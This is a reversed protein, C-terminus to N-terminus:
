PRRVSPSPEPPGALRTAVLASRRAAVSSLSTGVPLTFHNLRLLAEAEEGPVVAVVDEHVAVRQRRAHGLELRARPDLEADGLAAAALLRQRHPHEVRDRRQGLGCRLGGSSSATM